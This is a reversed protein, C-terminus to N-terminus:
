NRTTTGSGLLWLLAVAAAVAFVGPLGWRSASLPGGAAFGAFSGLFQATAFVSMAAGRVQAPAAQSLRAPLRAELYNFATFFAALAAWLLWYSGVVLSCAGLSLALLGVGARLIRDPRAAKETLLILPVTLPVSALFVGLYTRWHETVAIGLRDHLAYPAGVFTASLVANLVFIGAYHPFLDARFAPTLSRLSLPARTVPPPLPVVAYLLVLSLLALGATVAFIGPVGIAGALLPAGVLSLVFAGGISIGILAMARTRISPRTLDALLATVPGSVAGSGQVIRAGIVGWITTAATGLLSGAAFLLLGVAIVPRRGFRDSAIGFPIQLCAQTLGYLGVALGALSATGGPLGRGYLMLVPLMVFLGLMRVGYILALSAIARGEGPALELRGAGGAAEPRSGAPLDSM